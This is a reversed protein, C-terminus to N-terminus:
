KLFCSDDIRCLDDTSFINKTVTFDCYDACGILPLLYMRTLFNFYRFLGFVVANVNVLKKFSVSGVLSSIGMFLSYETALFVDM